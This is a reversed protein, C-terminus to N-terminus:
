HIGAIGMKAMIARNRAKAVANAKVVVVGVGPQGYFVLASVPAMAIALVAMLDEEGEVRVRVPKRGLMANRMGAIAATTLTGAPNTVKVLRAYPVNPEERATRREVGDVVQVDPIRGLDGLSETVRDGVTIVMPAERVLKEFEAGKAEDSSYVRGLPTALQSRLEEPLRYVRPLVTLKGKARIERAENHETDERGSVEGPQYHDGPGVM